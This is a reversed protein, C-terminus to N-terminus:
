FAQLNNRCAISPQCTKAGDLIKRLKRALEYISFPKQIFGNCGRRLVKAAPSDFAYGSSLLVPLNPKIKRIREFVRSGDLDPMVMDLIVMDIGKGVRSITEVAPRGGKAIIVHYGLRELMAKGVEIVMEEDDVFLITESGKVLKEQM